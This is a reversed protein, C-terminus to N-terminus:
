KNLSSTQCAVNFGIFKTVEGCNHSAIETHSDSNNVCKVRNREEPSQYGFESNHGVM